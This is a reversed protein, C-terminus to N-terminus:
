KNKPVYSSNLSKIATQTQYVLPQVDGSKLSDRSLYIVTYVDKDYDDNGNFLPLFYGSEEFQSSYVREKDIYYHYYGYESTYEAQKEPTFSGGDFSYIASHATINQGYNQNTFTNRCLYYKGNDYKYMFYCDNSNNLQNNMGESEYVLCANGSKYTYIECCYKYEQRSVYNGQNDEDRVKFGRRFGLVLEPVNDGDFDVLKVLALGDIYAVSGDKVYEAEGYKQNYDNVINYYANNISNATSANAAASPNTNDTSFKDITDSVATYISEAKEERLVSLKIREFSEDIKDDFYFAETAPDYTCKDCVSFYHKKLEYLEVSTIDNEDHTGIYYKGDGYRITIWVDDEKNGTQAARQHYLNTFKKDVYGWVEVYYTDNDLYGILLESRGDSNFDMERAYCLGTMRFGDIGYASYLNEYACAGYEKTYNSCVIGADANFQKNKNNANDISSVILVVFMAVIMVLALILLLVLGAKKRKTQRPSRSEGSDANAFGNEKVICAFKKLKDVPTDVYEYKDDFYNYRSKM